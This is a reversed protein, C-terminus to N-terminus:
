LGCEESCRTVMSCSVEKVHRGRVKPWLAFWILSQPTETRGDVTVRAAELRRIAKRHDGRSASASTSCLPFLILLRSICHEHENM